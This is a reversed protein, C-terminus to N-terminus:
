QTLTDRAPHPPHFPYPQRDKRFPTALTTESSGVVRYTKTAPDALLVAYSPDRPALDISVANWSYAVPDLSPSASRYAIRAEPLNRVVSAGPDGPRRGTAFLVYTGCTPKGTADLSFSPPNNAIHVLPGSHCTGVLNVVPIIKGPSGLFRQLSAPAAFSETVDVLLFRTSHHDHSLQDLLNRALSWTDREPQLTTTSFTRTLTFLNILTILGLGLLAAVRMSFKAVPTITLAGLTLFLLPFTSAGFRPALGLAVPFCCSGLLFILLIVLAPHNRPPSPPTATRHERLLLLIAAGLLVWVLASLLLSSINFASLEFIHQEGPLRYPWNTVGLVVNRLLGKPTLGTVVYAGTTGHFDLQRLLAVLALPLLFLASRLWRAQPRNGLNLVAVAAFAALPTYYATEKSLVALLAFIWAPALRGRALCLACLLAFLAGLYDFAFSPRYLVHYTYAPSAITACTVLATVLAPLRLVGAAFAFVVACLAAAFLYNAFLYASWHSGFLLSNLYYVANDAPRLFESYPTALDPFPKFYDAFGRTFWEPPTRTSCAPPTHSCPSSM